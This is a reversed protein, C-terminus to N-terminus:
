SFEVKQKLCINKKKERRSINNIKKNVLSFIIELERRNKQSLIIGDLVALRV